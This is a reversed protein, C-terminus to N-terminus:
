GDARLEQYTPVGAVTLGCADPMAWFSAPAGPGVHPYVTHLRDLHAFDQLSIATALDSELRAHRRETESRVWEQVVDELPETRM